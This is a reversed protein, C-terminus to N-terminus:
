EGSVINTSYRVWVFPDGDPTYAPKGEDDLIRFIKLASIKVRVRSGDQLKYDNWQENQIEFDLELADRDEGDNIQIKTVRGM